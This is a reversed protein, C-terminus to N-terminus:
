WFNQFVFTIITLRISCNDFLVSVVLAVCFLQRINLKENLLCNEKSYSSNRSFWGVVCFIFVTLSNPSNSTSAYVCVRVRLIKKTAKKGHVRKKRGMKTSSAFCVLFFHSVFYIFSYSFFANWCFLFFRFILCRCSENKRKFNWSWQKKKKHNNKKQQKEIAESEFSERMRCVSECRLSESVWERERANVVFCDSRKYESIKGAGSSKIDSAWENASM